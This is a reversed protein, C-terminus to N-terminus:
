TNIRNKGRLLHHHYTMKNQKVQPLLTLMLSNKVDSKNVENRNYWFAPFNHNQALSSWLITKYLPKTCTSTMFYPNSPIFRERPTPPLLPYFGCFIYQSSTILLIVPSAYILPNRPRRWLEMSVSTLDRLLFPVKKHVKNFARSRPFTHLFFCKIKDIPCSVVIKKTLQFSEPSSRHWCSVKLCYSYPLHYSICNCEEM